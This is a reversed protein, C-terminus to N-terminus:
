LKIIKVAKSMDERGVVLYYTGSSLSKLNIATATNDAQKEMVVKGSADLVKINMGNQLGEITLMGSTVTPYVKLEGLCNMQGAALVPSYRFSHDLDVLKLRYYLKTQAPDRDTFSYENQAGKSPIEQISKFDTGNSSRELVFHSFHEELGTRWTLLVACNDQIKADFSLLNVPLPISYNLSYTSPTPDVSGAADVSAYGFSTTSTGQPTTAGRVISLTAPDYTANPDIVTIPTGNVRLVFGNTPLSTIKVASWNQQAGSNVEPDSGRMPATSINVPNLPSGTVSNTVPYTEPLRNIGFNNGTIATNTIADAITVAIGGNATGDSESVNVWGSPLSAPPATNGVVGQVTSLRATFAGSIGVPASYTGDAQVAATGVVNGSGDVINVYLQGSAAAPGGTATGNVGGTTGDADNFVSGRVLAPCAKFSVNQVTYDDGTTGADAVYRLQLNGNNPISAPLTVTVTTFTVAPFSAPSVTASSLGTVTVNTTTANTTRLRAYTVGNYIVEFSAAMSSAVPVGDSGNLVLTVLAGSGTLNANTVPRTVVQAVNNDANFQTRDSAAYIVGSGSGTWGTAAPIAPLTINGDAAAGNFDYFNTSPLVKEVQLAAACQSSARYSGMSLIGACLCPLLLKHQKM